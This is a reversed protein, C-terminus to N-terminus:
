LSIFIGHLIIFDPQYFCHNIRLFFKLYNYQWLSQHCVADLHRIKRYHIYSKFRLFIFVSSFFVNLISILTLCSSHQSSVAIVIHIFMCIKLNRTFIPRFFLLSFRYIYSLTHIHITNKKKKKTFCLSCGM